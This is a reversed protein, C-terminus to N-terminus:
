RLVGALVALPVVAFGLWIGVAVLAAIWGPQPRQDSAMGGLSRRAASLGHRLHLALLSVAFLYILAVVPSRLGTTLNHYVAGAQFTSHVTGLTLHLLHFVIFGALLAGSWRMTRTSLTAVQLRRPVARAVNARQARRVLQVAAVGHLAALFLLGGRMAWLLGPRSHLLASYGDIAPQGSFILLNGALHACLWAWLLGGSTAMVVKKGVTSHWLVALTRM